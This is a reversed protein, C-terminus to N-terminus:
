LQAAAAAPAVPADAAPTVSTATPVPAKNAPKRKDEIQQLVKPLESEYFASKEKLGSVLVVCGVDDFRSVYYARFIRADSKLVADVRVFGHTVSKTVTYHSDGIEALSEQIFAAMEARTPKFVVTCIGWGNQTPNPTFNYVTSDDADGGFNLLTWSDSMKVTFKIFRSKIETEAAAVVCAMLVLPLLSYNLVKM